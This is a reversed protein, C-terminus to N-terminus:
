MRRCHRLTMTKTVAASLTATGLLTTSDYFSVSGTPVGGASSVRATFTLPQGSPVSEASSTLVTTTALLGILPVTSSKSSAHATDGPYSALVNHTGQGTVTVDTVTLTEAQVGLLISATNDAYNAIALDPLGDGNFDGVAVPYPSNGINGTFVVQPQFTGDGKGLLISVSNAGSNTVALDAFGDVLDPDRDFQLAPSRVGGASLAEHQIGSGGQAM